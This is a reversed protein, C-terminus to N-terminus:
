GKKIASHEATGTVQSAHLHILRFSAEKKTSESADAADEIENLTAETEAVSPAPANRLKAFVPVIRLQIIKADWRRSDDPFQRSFASIAKDLSGFRDLAAKKAEEESAHKSQPSGNIEQIRRWLADADRYQSFDEAKSGLGLVQMTVLVLLFSGYISCKQM